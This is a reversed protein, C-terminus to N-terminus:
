KIFIDPMIQSLVLASNVVTLPVGYDEKIKDFRGDPNSTRCVIMWDAQPCVLDILRENGNTPIEPARKDQEIHVAIIKMGQAKAADISEQVYEYEEEFTVGSAGLGKDTTGIVAILVEYNGSNIEEIRAPTEDELYFDSGLTFEKSMNILLRLQKSGPGQGASTLLFPCDFTMLEDGYVDANFTETETWIVNNVGDAIVCTLNHDGGSIEAYNLEISSSSGEIMENDIYWLYNISDLDVNSVIATANTGESTPTLSISLSPTTKIANMISVSVEGSDSLFYTVTVTDGNVIRVTDIAPLKIDNNGDIRFAYFGNDLNLEVSHIDDSRVFEVEQIPNMLDETTYLYLSYVNNNGSLGNIVVKLTGQGEIEKIAISVSSTGGPKVTTSKSGSGIAIDDANYATATLTWNGIAVSDNTYSGESSDITASITAGNPGSGEITYYEVDMSINPNIGKSIASSIDIKLSGYAVDQEASCSSVLAIVLFALLINVITKKM